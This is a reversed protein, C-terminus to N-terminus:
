EAPTESSADVIAARAAAEVIAFVEGIPRGSARALAACDEYEPAVAPPEGPLRRLKVTAPGLPTAVQRVEREAEYRREDRVRVGLTPLERLMATALAGEAEPRAVVTVRLGSRGKKMAAAAVWVDLAGAARIREVAFGAQEGTVDDVNTELVVVPRLPLAAPEAVGVWARLINPRGPDDRAGAGVGVRDLRLAPRGFTALEAVLAAGTPTVQEARAAPDGARIPASVQSLIELTAPAPLPVPGHGGRAVGESALPLASCHVEGIALQDLALLTGVIDVVADTRGVEHVHVRDISEGHARAEAAALRRFVAAARARIPEPLTGAELLAEIDALTRASEGEREVRVVAQTARLGAREVERATLSWEGLPLSRLPEAITEPEVGLDFLAGLLMDGSVGSPCDLYLCARDRGATASM